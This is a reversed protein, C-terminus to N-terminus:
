GGEPVFRYGRGRDNEIVGIPPKAQEMELRLRRIAEQVRRPTADPRRWVERLLQEPSLVERAHNQFYLLLAAEIRTLRGNFEPLDAREKSGAEGGTVPERSRGQEQVHNGNAPGGHSPATSPAASHLELREALYEALLPSFLEYGVGGGPMDPKCCVVMAQNILWNLAANEERGLGALGYPGDVMNRLLAQVAGPHIREPPAQVRRWLTEFLPRAHEALRLRILPLHEAGVEVDAPLMQRVELLIDGLLRLLYPHMGTLETLQTEIHRVGPYADAYDAVWRRAAEPEVLGLFVQTMVNFLPSAALSRDLDHLPQETAVVLAAQLTLPRLENVADSPLHAFVRDFNDLLLVLRYDLDNLARLLASIRAGHSSGGAAEPRMTIKAERRLAASLQDHLFALLNDQAAATGCDLRLAILRSGDDWAVPRLDAYAEGTLPGDESALWALLRSKGVLKAGVLSFSTPPDSLVGQVVERVLRERGNFQRESASM